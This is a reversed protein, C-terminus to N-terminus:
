TKMMVSQQKNRGYRDMVYQLGTSVSKIEPRDPANKNGNPDSAVLHYLNNIVYYKNLKMRINHLTSM